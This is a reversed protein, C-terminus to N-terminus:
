KPNLLKLLRQPFDTIIGDVGAHIFKEMDRIDNVTFVNVRKGMLKLDRIKDVTIMTSNVNYTNFDYDGWEISKDGKKGLLAQIEVHPLQQEMERLWQHNFSSVIVLNSPIAMEKILSAVKQPLNDRAPAEKKGEKLELNIPWQYKLTYRLAERLTPIKEGKFADFSDYGTFPAPTFNRCHFPLDNAAIQGFPDQEIFPIGLDLLKLQQLDYGGLYFTDPHDPFLHRANTTRKLHHDHFIILEDDRSVNVDAEWLDAGMKRAIDAAAITNEPALSRAGRHAINFVM